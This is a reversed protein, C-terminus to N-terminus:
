QILKKRAIAKIKTSLKPAYKLHREVLEEIVINPIYQKVLQTLQKHDPHTWVYVSKSFYQSTYPYLWEFFSDRFVLISPASVDCYTVFVKDPKGKNTNKELTQKECQLLPHKLKPASKDQLYNTLNLMKAIGGAGPDHWSFDSAKYKIPHLNPYTKTLYNIIEYQAIAAGFDNWHTDNKYYVQGETKAKILAPRLDVIPVVSNKMYEIFQDLRTQTGVINIRDSFYEGYISHKDPAIVFVYGIGQHKLWWYREELVTKWQRLQQPTLGDNKRYDELSNGGKPDIYFLWQDKGIIVRPSLSTGLWLGFLYYMQALHDRFGFHDNFWIQFKEPFVKLSTKNWDPYLALTRQEIISQTQNHTLMLPIFISFLFTVILAYDFFKHKQPM